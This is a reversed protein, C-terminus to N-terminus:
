LNQGYQTGPEYKEDLYMKPDTSILRSVTFGQENKLLEVFGGNIERTEIQPSYKNEFIKEPPVISHILIVIM